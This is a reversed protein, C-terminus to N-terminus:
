RVLLKTVAMGAAGEAKVVYNGKTLAAANLVTQGEGAAVKGVPQGLFNYVTVDTGAVTGSVTFVAGAAVVSPYVSIGNTVNTKQIGTGQALKVGRVCTPNLGAPMPFTRDFSGRGNKSYGHNETKEESYLNVSVEEDNVSCLAMDVFGDGNVDLLLPIDNRTGFQMGTIDQVAFDPTKYESESPTFSAMWSGKNYIVVDDQGDKNLDGALLCDDDAIGFALNVDPAMARFHMLWWLGYENDRRISVDGIGDGNFDGALAKDGVAMGYIVDEPDIFNNNGDNYYFRWHILQDAAGSRDVECLDFFGDGNADYVFVEAIPLDKTQTPVELDIKGDLDFDFKYGGENSWYVIGDQGYAFVAM